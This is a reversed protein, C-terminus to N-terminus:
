RVREIVLSALAILDDAMSGDPLMTIAAAARDQATRTADRRGGAAVILAAAEAIDDPTMPTESRYMPELAAAPPTGSRLAAIVPLSRKRLAIDTGAPKGTVEPDGWIGILDDICQFALGLERGFREMADVADPDADACLAGLACSCGILAGTKGAAMRLYDDTEVESASEFACDEFQGRCLETAAAELRDIATLIAGTPWPARVLAQVAAAHLADGLLIANTKGWVRWVTPRGRRLIDEDMLDDHVLTFNHMLEVAAAAPVADGVNGGCARTAAFVLAARISKGQNTTSRKGASDWWGLQYGAMLHLPSSLTEIAQNIGPACLRRADLLLEATAHEGLGGGFNTGLM